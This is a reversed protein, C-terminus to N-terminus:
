AAGHRLLKGVLRRGDEDQVDSVVVPANEDLRDFSERFHPRKTEEDLVLKEEDRADLGAVKKLDNSTDFPGNGDKM